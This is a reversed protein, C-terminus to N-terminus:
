FQKWQEATRSRLLIHSSLNSVDNKAITEGLIVNDQLQIFATKYRARSYNASMSGTIIGYLTYDIFRTCSYYASLSGTIIKYHIIRLRRPISTVAWWLHRSWYACQELRLQSCYPLLCCYETHQSEFPVANLHDWHLPPGKSSQKTFYVLM